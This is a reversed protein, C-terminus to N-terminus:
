GHSARVIRRWEIFGTPFSHSTTEAIRGPERLKAHVQEHQRRARPRTLPVPMRDLVLKHINELATDHEHRIRNFPKELGAVTSAEGRAYGVAMMELISGCTCRGNEVDARTSQSIVFGEIWVDVHMSELGVRTVRVPIS